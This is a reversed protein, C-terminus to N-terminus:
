LQTLVAINVRVGFLSWWSWRIQWDMQGERQMSCRPKWQFSKWSIQYQLIIRFEPSIIWTKNFDTSFLAVKCSSRHVNIITSTARQIRRRILLTTSLLQLSLWFVCKLRLVSKEGFITGKILYRPFIHHLWLRCIVIHRMRMAHPIVLALICVCV